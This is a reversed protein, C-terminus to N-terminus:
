DNNDETEHLFQKTSMMIALNSSTLEASVSDYQEIKNIMEYSDIM